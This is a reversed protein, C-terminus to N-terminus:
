AVDPLGPMARLEQLRPGQGEVQRRQRRGRLLWLAGAPQWRKAVM